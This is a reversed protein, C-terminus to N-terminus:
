SMVYSWHCPEASSCAPAPDPTCLPHIPNGEPMTVNTNVSISPLTRSHSASGLRHRLRRGAMVADDTLLDLSRATVDELRHALRKTRHEGVRGGRQRRRYSDLPSDTSLRPRGAQGDPQAHRQMRTGAHLAIAVIETRHHAPDVPQKGDAMAPLDQHRPRCVLQQDVLQGASDPKPIQALMAQLVQTASVPDELHGPRAQGLSEARQARQIVRRQPVVQWRLRGTEDAPGGLQGLQPGQHRAPRPQDRDCPRAPDALGAQRQLHGGIRQVAGAVPHPQDLQRRHGVGLQHGAGHGGHEADALLRSPGHEVGQDLRDAVAVQQHDEVIGLVHEARGGLQGVGQHPGARSRIQQNRAPFRQAGAPLVDEPNGRQGDRGGIEGGGAPQGSELRHLQERLAGHQVPPAESEVGGVGCCHRRDAHPQVPNRQGELEGRGSGRQVPM